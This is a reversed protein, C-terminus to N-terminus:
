LSKLHCKGDGEEVTLFAVHDLIQIRLHFGNMLIVSSKAIVDSSEDGFVVGEGFGQLDSLAM